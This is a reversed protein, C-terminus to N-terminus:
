AGWRLMFWEINSKVQFKYGASGSQLLFEEVRNKAMWQSVEEYEATTNAHYVPYDAWGPYRTRTIM